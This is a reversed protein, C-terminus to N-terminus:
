PGRSEAPGDNEDHEKRLVQPVDGHAQGPEAPSVAEDQQAHLDELHERYPHPQPPASSCQQPHGGGWVRGWRQRCIMRAMM